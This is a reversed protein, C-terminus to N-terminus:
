RYFGGGEGWTGGIRTGYEHSLFLCFCLRRPLLWANAHFPTSNLKSCIRPATTSLFAAELSFSTPGQNTNRIEIIRGVEKNGMRGFDDCNREVRM